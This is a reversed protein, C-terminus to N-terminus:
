PHATTALAELARRSMRRVTANAHETEMDRIQFLAQRLTNVETGLSAMTVENHRLEFMGM